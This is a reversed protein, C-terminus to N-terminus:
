YYYLLISQLVTPWQGPIHSISILVQPSEFRLKTQLSPIFAFLKVHTKSQIYNKRARIDSLVSSSCSLSRENNKRSDLVAQSVDARM